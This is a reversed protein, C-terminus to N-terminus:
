GAGVRVRSLDAASRIRADYSHKLSEKEPAGVSMELSIAPYERSFHVILPVLLTHAAIHDVALRLM